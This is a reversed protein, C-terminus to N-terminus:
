AAAVEAALLKAPRAAPATYGVSRFSRYPGAPLAWHWQERVDDETLDCVEVVWESLPPIAPDSPLPVYVLPERLHPSGAVHRSWGPKPFQIADRDAQTLPPLEDASVPPTPEARPFYHRGLRSLKENKAEAIMLLGLAMERDTDTM